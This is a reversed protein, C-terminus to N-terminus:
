QISATLAAAAQVVADSAGIAVISPREDSAGRTPRLLVAQATTQRESHINIVLLAEFKSSLPSLPPVLFSLFGGPNTQKFAFEVSAAQPTRVFPKPKVM